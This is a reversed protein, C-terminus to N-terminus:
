LLYVLGIKLTFSCFLHLFSHTCPPSTYAHLIAAFFSSNGQRRHVKRTSFLSPHVHIPAVISYYVWISYNMVSKNVFIFESFEFPFPRLFRIWNSDWIALIDRWFFSIVEFYPFIRFSKEPSTITWLFFSNVSFFDILYKDYICWKFVNLNAVFADSSFRNCSHLLAPKQWKNASLYRSSFLPSPKGHLM